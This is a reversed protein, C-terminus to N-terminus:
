AIHGRTLHAPTPAGLLTLALKFEEGLIALAREVGAQGGAALAWLIPRGVLVGRAGLACAIAVDLGRRVGGDVWVETAPAAAVVEELVDIPAPTRDLQRGGHNSVVIADVGHEAALRADEGTMVGKLVLPLGSWSRITALSDWTLNSALWQDVTEVDGSAGEDGTDHSAHSPGPGGTFNGHPVDLDFGSRRDRDRYGLEPLDVTLVIAGYGAAEAREVLSRTRGPDVQAYLQFFRTAGPAAAAIDEMSTTSMTSPIFPIGAAAAARATAAEADANALGHAAMPAIAVPMESPRGLFTSSPDVRSVDILVRPRLRYALWAADNEALSVEDWSGGEIYDWFPAEVIREALQRFDPLRVVAALEESTALERRAAPKLTM